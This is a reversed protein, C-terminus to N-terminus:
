AQRYGYVRVKLSTLAGYAISFYIGSFSQTTNMYGIYAGGAGGTRPDTRYGSLVTTQSLFPNFLDFGTGGANGTDGITLSSFNGGGASGIQSYTSTTAYGTNVYQYYYDTNFPTGSNAMRTDLAVATDARFDSVVIRYSDYTASFCNTISLTTGSTAVGQTIYVLGSNALYENTNAATLVEGTTFTKIAM